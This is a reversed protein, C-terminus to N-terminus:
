AEEDIKTEKPKLEEDSMPFAKDLFNLIWKKLELFNKVLGKVKTEPIPSEQPDNLSSNMWKMMALQVVDAKPAAMLLPIDAGRERAEGVSFYVKRAIEKNNTLFIVEDMKREILICRIFQEKIIDSHKNFSAITNILKQEITNLLDFKPSESNDYMTIELNNESGDISIFTKELTLFLVAHNGIENEGSKTVVEICMYPVDNSCHYAIEFVSRRSVGNYPILKKSNKYTTKVKEFKEVM